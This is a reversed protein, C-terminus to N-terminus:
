VGKLKSLFAKLEAMKEPDYISVALVEKKKKKFIKKKAELEKEDILDTKTFIIYEEKEALEKKYEQLENRIVGYDALPDLSDSAICHLLVRTREIHRLFKYGLGRGKSAGEILGPIDALILPQLYPNDQPYFAGLNPELTTFPYNAVKVNARTLENLLSSKGANPLGILGADAILQLELFLEFEEGPKGYEFEKPSTNEPGRFHFNGRGGRGGRAVMVREGVKIIEVDKNASGTSPIGFHVVTGIPVKLILDEGNAGDLTKARGNEGNKASFNKKFRYQRLASLDSVGEVYVNGGRGGSGGTVGRGGKSTDFAVAGDGGKGDKITIKAEDVLM